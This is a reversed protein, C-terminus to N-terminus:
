AVALAVANDVLARHQEIAQVRWEAHRKDAATEVDRVRVSHQAKRVGGAIRADARGTDFHDIKRGPRDVVVPGLVKNGTRIAALEIDGDARIAVHGFSAHVHLSLTGGDPLHIDRATRM